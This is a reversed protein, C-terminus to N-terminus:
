RLIPNIFAGDSAIDWVAFRAWKWEGAQVTWDFTSDGFPGTKELSITENFTNKGDGWVVEAFRLPLTWRVRAHVVIDGNAGAHINAEPLLVEGTSVFFDGRRLPPLIAGYHDFDPLRDMRVYNANMHGYLEDESSIKFVDVEALIKKPQGWNSMDNLLNLSRDGLRPSSLDVNIDKWSGGFFHSDLYFDKDRYADPYGKSGKTRPHTTYVFADEQQILNFMDHEDGVHYVKGHQADTTIFPTGEPRGMFWYVPKPFIGIWHGGLHVDAEEGPFM